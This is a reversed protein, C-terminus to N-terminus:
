LYFLSLTFQFNCFLFVLSSLCALCANFETCYMCRSFKLCYLTLYLILKLCYLKSFNLHMISLYFMVFVIWYFVVSVEIVDTFMHCNRSSCDVNHGSDQVIGEDQENDHQDYSEEEECVMRDLVSEMAESLEHEENPNLSYDLAQFIVIGM